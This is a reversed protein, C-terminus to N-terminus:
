VLGLEFRSEQVVHADDVVQLLEVQLLSYFHMGLLPKGLGLGIFNRGNVGDGVTVAEYLEHSCNHKVFSRRIREM